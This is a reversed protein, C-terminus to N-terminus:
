GIWAANRTVPRGVRRANRPPAPALFRPMRESHGPVPAPVAERYQSTSVVVPAALLAIVEDPLDPLEQKWAREEVSWCATSRSEEIDSDSIPLEDSAM